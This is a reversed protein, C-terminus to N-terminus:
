SEKEPYLNVSIVTCVSICFWNMRQQTLTFRLGWGLVGASANMCPPAQASSLIRHVFLLCSTIRLNGDKATKLICMEVSRSLRNKRESKRKLYLFIIFINLPKLNSDDGNMYSVFYQTSQILIRAFFARDRNKALFNM